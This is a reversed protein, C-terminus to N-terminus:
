AACRELATSCTSKERSLEALRRTVSAVAAGDGWRSASLKQQAQELFPLLQGRYQGDTLDDFTTALEAQRTWRAARRTLAFSHLPSSSPRSACQRALQLLRLTLRVLRSLWDFDVSVPDHDNSRLEFWHRPGRVLTSLDDAAGAETTTATAAAVEGLPVANGLAGGARLRRLLQMVAESSRLLPRWVDVSVASELAPKITGDSASCVLSEFGGYVEYARESVPLRSFHGHLMMAAQLMLVPCDAREALVVARSFDTLVASGAETETKGQVAEASGDDASGDPPCQVACRALLLKAQARWPADRRRQDRATKRLRRSGFAHGLFPAVLNPRRPNRPL